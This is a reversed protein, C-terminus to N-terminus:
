IINIFVGGFVWLLGRRRSGSRLPERFKAFTLMFGKGPELLFPPAYFYEITEFLTARERRFGTAIGYSIFRFLFFLTLIHLSLRGDMLMGPTVATPFHGYVAAYLLAPLFLLLWRGQLKWFLFPLALLVVTETYLGLYASFYGVGGLSVVSRFVASRSLCYLATLFAWALFAQHLPFVWLEQFVTFGTLVGVPYVLIGQCRWRNGKLETCPNKPYVPIQLASPPDYESTARGAGDFLPCLHSLDSGGEGHPM